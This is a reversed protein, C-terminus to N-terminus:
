WPNFCTHGLQEGRDVDARRSQLCAHEVTGAPKLRQGLAATRRAIERVPAHM